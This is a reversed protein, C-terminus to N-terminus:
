IICIHLHQQTANVVITNQAKVSSVNLSVHRAYQEM